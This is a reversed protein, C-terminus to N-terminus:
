FPYTINYRDEAVEILDKRVGWKTYYEDRYYPEHWSMQFRRHDDRRERYLENLLTKGDYENFFINIQRMRRVVYELDDEDGRIYKECLQSDKRFNINFKDLEGILEQKRISRKKAKEESEKRIRRTRDERRSKLKNEYLELNEYTKHRKLMQLFVLRENFLKYYPNPHEVCNLEDLYKDTIRYQKKAITKCISKNPRIIIYQYVTRDTANEMDNNDKALSIIMSKMNKNVVILSLIDKYGLFLYIINYVDRVIHDMKLM